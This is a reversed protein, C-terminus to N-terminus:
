AAEPIDLQGTVAATILALRREALLELQRDLALRMDRLHQAERRLRDLDRCKRDVSALPIEVRDLEWINLGSITAGTIRRRVDRQTTPAELAYMLWESSVGECPAVRAVDQTINAGTLEDPVVAVDGIGGRIAFVLDGGRLRARAYPKEIEPTTKCLADWSLRRQAVDGGKVIAIGDGGVDPGPLVIGYMVPRRPDVLHMIRTTSDVDSWIVTDLFEHWREALLDGMRQKANILADIRATERDLYDAIARQCGLSPISLRLNQYKSASFNEITSVVKGVAIQDWYTRSEMWYAIFRGGVDARPRFRALYGAYCAPVDHDFLLSKGITAGAATMVIDGPRLMAAAAIDPPLSAFVDERLSRPNAIDTTRIYRPWSPDDLGGPEGLGNRIPIEALFKLRTARWSV